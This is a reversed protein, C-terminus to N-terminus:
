LSFGSLQLGLVLHAWAMSLQRIQECQPAQWNLLMCQQMLHAPMDERVGVAGLFTLNRLALTEFAYKTNGFLTMGMWAKRNVLLGDFRQIPTLYSWQPDAAWQTDAYQQSIWAEFQMSLNQAQMVSDTEELMVYMWIPLSAHSFPLGVQWPAGAKPSLESGAPVVLTAGTNVDQYIDYEFALPNFMAFVQALQNLGLQDDASGMLQALSRTRLKILRVDGFQVEEGMQAQLEAAFLASTGQSGPLTRETSQELRALQAAPIGWSINLAGEELGGNGIAVVVGKGDIIPSGSLGPLLSENGLKMVELAPDPYGNQRLKALVKASVNDALRRGGYRQKFSFSNIQPTNLPYGLAHIEEELGPLTNTSALAAVQPPNDVKLLVLDADKLVRAVSASRSLRPEAYDIIIQRSGDVVHLSTVIYDASQWVFGTAAHGTDVSRVKVVSPRVRDFTQQLQALAQGSVLALCGILLILKM